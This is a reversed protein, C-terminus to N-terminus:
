REAAAQCAACWIVTVPDCSPRPEFFEGLDLCFPNAIQLQEFAHSPLLDMRIRYGPSVELPSGHVPCRGGVRDAYRGRPTDPFRSRASQPDTM